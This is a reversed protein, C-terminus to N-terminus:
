PGIATGTAYRAVATGEGGTIGVCRLSCLNRENLCSAGDAFHNIEGCARVGDAKIRSLTCVILGAALCKFHGYVALDHARERGVARSVAEVGGVTERDRGSRMGHFEDTEIRVTLIVRGEDVPGVYGRGSYPVAAELKSWIAKISLERAIKLTTRSHGNIM